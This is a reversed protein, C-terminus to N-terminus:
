WDEAPNHSWFFCKSLTLAKIQYLQKHLTLISAIGLTCNISCSLPFPHAGLSTISPTCSQYGCDDAKWPIPKESPSQM